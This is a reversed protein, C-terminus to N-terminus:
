FVTGAILTLAMTGTAAALLTTVFIVAAQLRRRRLDRLAKLLVATM